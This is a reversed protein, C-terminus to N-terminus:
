VIFPSSLAIFPRHLPSSPAIFSKPPIDNKETLHGRGFLKQIKASQFIVEM